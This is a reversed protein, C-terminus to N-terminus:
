QHLAAKLLYELSEQLMYCMQLPDTVDGGAQCGHLGHQAVARDLGVLNTYVGMRNLQGIVSESQDEQWDGDTMIWLSRHKYTSNAFHPLVHDHLVEFPETGGHSRWETVLGHDAVEHPRYITYPTTDFAYVAWRMTERGQEYAQALDNLGSCVAWLMQSVAQMRTRRTGDDGPMRMSDSCDLAIVLDFALQQRRDEVEEIRDRHNHGMLQGVVYDVPELEGHRANFVLDMGAEAWFPNVTHVLQARAMKARETPEVKGYSQLQRPQEPPLGEHEMENDAAHDLNTSLELDAQVASLQEDLEESLEDALGALQDEPSESGAGQAASDTADDGDNDSGSGAQATDTGEDSDGEPKGGGQPQEDGQEGQAAEQEDQGGGQAEAEDEDELDDQHDRAARGARQREGEDGAQDAMAHGWGSPLPVGHIHALEAFREALQLAYTAAGPDSRSFVLTSFCVGIQYLEELDEDSWIRDGTGPDILEEAAQAFANYVEVPLYPRCCVMPFYIGLANGQAEAFDPLNKVVDLVFFREIRPYMAAWQTEIRGVDLIQFAAQTNYSHKVLDTYPRLNRGSSLSIGALRRYNAAYLQALVTKEAKTITDAALEHLGHAGFVVMRGDIGCIEQAGNADVIQSVLRCGTEPIGSLVRNTLGLAKPLARLKISRSEVASVKHSFPNNQPRAM